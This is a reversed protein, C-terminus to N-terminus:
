KIILSVLIAITDKIQKFVKDFNEDEAKGNYTPIKIYNCEPIGLYKIKIVANPEDPYQNDILISNIHNICKKPIVIERGIGCYPRTDISYEIFKDRDIIEDEDFGLGFHENILTAYDNTAATLLKCITLRRCYQILELACPRLVSSYWYNGLNFVFAGEFANEPKRNNFETYILTEDLDLFVVPWLNELM